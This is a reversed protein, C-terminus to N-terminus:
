SILEYLKVAQVAEKVDHVRLISAGRDLAFANLVTTGNLADESGVNLAEKIMSKRSVGVLVPSDLSGCIVSLDRLLAYNQACTKGFGFGPDVIIDSVGLLRLQRIKKSLDLVVDATVDEYETLNQMTEPTGRTHMLIYPVRYRSVVEYMRSDMDGGSIDNIIDAGWEGIAAEAVDSRFTDISVPLDTSVRRIAKMGLRVRAMEEEAGAPMSGPRTSCGGLDIIDVGDAIMREVKKCIDLESICRSNAWFSDPTVNIIGMVQPRSCIVLKGGINLSFPHFM